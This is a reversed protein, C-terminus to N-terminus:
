DGQNARHANNDQTITEAVVYLPRQKVENYVRGLYEGLLGISMLQIGSFLMLASALTAFGPIPQGIILWELVIWLGYTLALASIILGLVSSIRLPWSTFATIGDVALSVLAPRDFASEGGARSAPKFKVGESSFGVWAYLGKMFRTREPLQNLNEVVSRDLLRYDGADRPIKFRRHSDSLLRYFVGTLKRHLWSGERSRQQIGYVMDVGSQWREVMTAILEPPHQFDADILLVADAPQELSAAARLGATLACEKGFNRSLRIIRLPHIGVLPRLQQVTDDSSGDDVAIITVTKFLSATCRHLVDIFRACHAAENFMPVVCALHAGSASRNNAFIAESDM